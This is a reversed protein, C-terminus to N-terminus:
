IISIYTPNSFDHDLRNMAIPGNISKEARCALRNEGDFM